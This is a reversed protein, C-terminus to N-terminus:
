DACNEFLFDSEVDCTAAGSGQAQGEATAAPCSVHGWIQGPGIAVAGAPLMNTKGPFTFTLTCGSGDYVTGTLATVFTGSISTSGQSTVGQGNITTTGNDNDNAYLTLSYSGSGSVTCQLNIPHGGVVTGDPSTEPLSSGTSVENGIQTVPM